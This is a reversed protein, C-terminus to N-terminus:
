DCRGESCCNTLRQSKSHPLVSVWSASCCCEPSCAKAIQYAVAKSSKCWCRGAIELSTSAQMATVIDGQSLQRQYCICHVFTHLREGKLVLGIEETTIEVNVREVQEPVTRDSFKAAEFVSGHASWSPLADVESETMQQLYEEHIVCVQLSM